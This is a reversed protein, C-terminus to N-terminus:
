VDLPAPRLDGAQSVWGLGSRCEGQRLSRGSPTCTSPGATRASVQSPPEEPRDPTNPAKFADGRPGGTSPRDSHAQAPGLLPDPASSILTKAVPPSGPARPLLCPGEPVHEWGRREAGPGPGRPPPALPHAGGASSGGPDMPEGPPPLSDTCRSGSCRLSLYNFTISAPAEPIVNNLLWLKCVYVCMSLQPYNISENLDAEAM